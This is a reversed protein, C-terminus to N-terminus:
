LRIFHLLFEILFSVSYLLKYGPMYMLNMYIAFTEFMNSCLKISFSKTHIHLHIYIQSQSCWFRICWHETRHKIYWLSHQIPSVSLTSTCTVSVPLLKLAYKFLLIQWFVIGDGRAEKPQTFDCCECWTYTYMCLNMVTAITSQFILLHPTLM